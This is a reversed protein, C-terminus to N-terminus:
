PVLNTVKWHVQDVADADNGDGTVVCWWSGAQDAEIRLEYRGVAPNTVEDDVGWIYDTEIDDPDHVTFVVDDPDVHGDRNRFQVSVLAVNGVLM